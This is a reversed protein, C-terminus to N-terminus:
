TEPYTVKQYAVALWHGRRHRFECIWLGSGRVRERFNDNLNQSTLDWVMSDAGAAATAVYFYPGDPLLQGGDGRGDWTDAYTGAPRSVSNQLTRVTQGSQNKIFLSQSLAFPVVSSYAVVGGVAANLQLANQSVTFNGVNVARLATSTSGENDSAQLRLTYPGNPIPVTMWTGVPGNSVPLTGSNIRAWTSPADGPGFALSWAILNSM